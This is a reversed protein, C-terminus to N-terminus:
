DFGMKIKVDELIQKDAFLFLTLSINSKHQRSGRALSKDAEHETHRNINHATFNFARM